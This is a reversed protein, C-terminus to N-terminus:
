FFRGKQKNSDRGMLRVGIEPKNEILQSYADNHIRLWWRPKAQKNM